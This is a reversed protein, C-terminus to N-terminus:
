DSRDPALASVLGVSAIFVFAAMAAVPVWLGLLGDAAFPGTTTFLTGLRLAYALAAALGVWGVWPSWLVRDRLAITALALALGSVAPAAMGMALWSFDRLSAALEPNALM